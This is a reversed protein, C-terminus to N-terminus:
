IMLVEDQIWKLTPQLLDATTAKEIAAFTSDETSALDIMEPMPFDIRHVNKHGVLARATAIDRDVTLVMMLSLAGGKMWDVMGEDGMIKEKNDFFSASRGTGMSLVKLHKLIGSGYEEVLTQIAPM